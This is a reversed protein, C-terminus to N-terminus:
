NNDNENNGDDKKTVFNEGEEEKVNKGDDFAKVIGEANENGNIDDKVNAKNDEKEEKVSSNSNLYCVSIEEDNIM